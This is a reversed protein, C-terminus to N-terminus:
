KNAMQGQEKSLENTLTKIPDNTNHLNTNEIEQYLRLIIEWDSFYSVIKEM